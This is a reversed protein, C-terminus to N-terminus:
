ILCWVPLFLAYEWTNGDRHTPIFYMNWGTNCTLNHAPIDGINPSIGPEFVTMFIASIGLTNIGPFVGLICATYNVELNM